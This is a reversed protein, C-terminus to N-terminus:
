GRGEAGTMQEMWGLLHRARAEGTHHQLFHRHGAEAIDRAAEPHARCYRLREELEPLDDFFLAHKGDEFDYPIGIPPREALLMCGHAPLEWYRVTDFGNGFLCLGVLRRLLECAYEEQTFRKALDVGWHERLYELTARRAGYQVQGAWFLGERGDFAVDGPVHGLDYAFPLAVTGASYPVGALMERKFQGATRGIGFHACIDDRYDGCQDWMDVVFVPTEGVGALVPGLEAADLAGLTDSVLVADFRGARLEAAVQDAPLAEGPLDFTCPYHVHDNPPLGHLPPKWPFDVVNEGGLLSRLGAFLVDSGYDSETHIVYLVRLPRGTWEPADPVPGPATVAPIEDLLAQTATDPAVHLVSRLQRRAMDPRGIRQWFLARCQYAPHHCPLFTSAKYFEDQARAFRNLRGAAGEAQDWAMLGLLKESSVLGRAEESTLLAQPINELVEIAWGPRGGALLRRAHRVPDYDGPVAMLALDGGGAQSLGEWTVGLYVPAADEAVKWAAYLLLDAGEFSSRLVPLLAVDLVVYLAGGPRLLARAQALSVEDPSAVAVVLADLSSSPGSLGTLREVPPTEASAALPAPPAGPGCWGVRRMYRLLLPLIPKPQRPEAM